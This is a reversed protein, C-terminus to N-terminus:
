FALISRLKNGLSTTEIIRQIDNITVLVFIFMLVFIGILNVWHEVKPNPKKRTVAEYGIFLLRGGDLAPFPLINLVALNISLVGIIVIPFYMLFFTLAILPWKLVKVFRSIM